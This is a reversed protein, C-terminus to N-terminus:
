NNVGGWAGGTGGGVGGVWCLWGIRERRGRAERSLSMGAERFLQQVQSSFAERGGWEVGGWSQGVGERREKKMGEEERRSGMGQDGGVRRGVEVVVRGWWWVVM